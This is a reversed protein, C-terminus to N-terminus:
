ASLGVRCVACTEGARRHRKAASPSGCDRAVPGAFPSTVVTSYSRGAARVVERRENVSTGGWVGDVPNDLAYQLCPEQVPCSRCVQKAPLSTGGKEPFFLELDVQSCLAGTWDPVAVGTIM